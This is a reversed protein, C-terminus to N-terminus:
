IGVGTQTVKLLNATLRLKRIQLIVTVPSSPPDFSMVQARSMYYANLLHGGGAVPIGPSIKQTDKTM